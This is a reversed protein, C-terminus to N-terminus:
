PTTRSVKSRRTPRTAPEEPRTIQSPALWGWRYFYVLMTTTIAAMVGLCIFYAHPVTLEPMAEFNMGYIGTILTLPMFVASIVTLVRLRDETRQQYYVQLEAELERARTDLRDFSRDIYRILAMLTEQLAIANDSANDRITPSSLSALCYVQDECVNGCRVVARKLRRIDNLAVRGPRNEVDESLTQVADRMTQLAERDARGCAEFLESLPNSATEAGKKAAQERFAEVYDARATTFTIANNARSVVVLYGRTWGRTIQIPFTLLRWGESVLFEPHLNEATCIDEIEGPAGVARLLSRITETDPAVAHSWAHCGDEPHVLIEDRAVFKTGRVEYHFVEM